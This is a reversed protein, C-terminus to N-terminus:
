TLWIKKSRLQNLNNSYMERLDKIQHADMITRDFGQGWALVPIPKGFLPATVEPRFMGAGGFELWTKKEPHYVHIEVSPETYPFYAPTFRINEFGMKKYYLKLYGLLDRLTIDPHVVIGETQYFEFGHSWDVTENRFDKNITFFKKPLDEPKLKALTRASLNTTHPRLAPRKAEEPSWSYQWGKSGAIGTEHAQKVKTTTEKKPLEAQVDKIFFTDQLDRVPHDQATFLADFVWFSSDVKPGTMEEFGLDLWIRKGYEIAQNVFHRKSAHLKPVPAHIDYARLQKNRNWTKIVDTTIDEILDKTETLLKPNALLEKGSDTLTFSTQATEKTEVMEKRKKLTEYALTQEPALDKEPLPLTDIFQEELTKKSLEEKSAQLSLKGNKLQLLAKKQLVGLAAKFENDSLKTAKKAEQIPQHNKTELATTLRREPLHNKKYYLGNTGLQITKETTKKIELLGKNQLFQLARSISTQDLGTEKKIEPLPKELHPVISRELPSLQQAIKQLEKSM